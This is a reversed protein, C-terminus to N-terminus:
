PEKDSGFFTWSNINKAINKTPSTNLNAMWGIKEDRDIMSKDM